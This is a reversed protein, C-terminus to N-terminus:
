YNVQLHLIIIFDYANFYYFPCSCLSFIILSIRFVIIISIQLIIGVLMVCVYVCECVFLYKSVLMFIGVCVHCTFVRACPCVCVCQNVKQVNSILHHINYCNIGDQIAKFVAKDESEIVQSVTTCNSGLQQLMKNVQPQLDDTGEGTAPNVICMIYLLM